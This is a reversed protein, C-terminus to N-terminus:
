MKIERERKHEKALTKENRKKMQKLEVYKYDYKVQGTKLTLDKYNERVLGCQWCGGVVVLQIFKGSCKTVGKPMVHLFLLHPMPGTIQRCPTRKPSHSLVLIINQQKCVFIRNLLPQVNQLLLPIDVGGSTVDPPFTNNTSLININCGISRPYSSSAQRM